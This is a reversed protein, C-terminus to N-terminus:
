NQVVCLVGYGQYQNSLGESEIWDNYFLLTLGLRWCEVRTKTGSALCSMALMRGMTDFLGVQRSQSIGPSELMRNKPTRVSAMRRTHIATNYQSNHLSLVLIRPCAQPQRCGRAGLDIAQGDCSVSIELGLNNTDVRVSLWHLVKKSLLGFRAWPTPPDCRDIYLLIGWHDNRISQDTAQQM